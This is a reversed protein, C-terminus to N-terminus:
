SLDAVEELGAKQCFWAIKTVQNARLAGTKYGELLYDRLEAQAEAPGLEDWFNGEAAACSESEWPHLPKQEWSHEQISEWPHEASQGHSSASARKRKCRRVPM